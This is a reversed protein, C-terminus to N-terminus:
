HSGQTAKGHGSELNLSQEILRPDDFYQTASIAHHGWQRTAGDRGTGDPGFLSRTGGGPADLTMLDEYPRLEYRQSPARRQADAALDVVHSGSRLRLVAHRRDRLWAHGAGDARAHDYVLPKGDEGLTVRWIMGDLAGPRPSFWIFYNLQVLTRDHIRAYSPLYYVVPRSVDVSPGAETLIPAGVRDGDGATEILLQPAHRAALAPWQDMLLGVRGLEDRAATAFGSPLNVDAPPSAARWQILPTHSRAAPASDHPAAPQAPADSIRAAEILKALTPPDALEDFSLWVACTRLTNLLDAREYKPMGLNTLEIDRAISDNERLQLMWTGLTNLDGSVETRYSSMLRDTRIYPFGPVAFYEDDHVGAKQIRADVDAYSARCQALFARFKADPDDSSQAAGPSTQAEHPAPATACGAILLVAALVM